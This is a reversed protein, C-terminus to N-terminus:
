SSLLQPLTLLHIELITDTVLEPRCARKSHKHKIHKPNSGLAQGGSTGCSILLDCCVPM